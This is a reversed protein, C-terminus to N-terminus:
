RIAGTTSLTKSLMPSINIDVALELGIMIPIIKPPTRTTTAVAGSLEM